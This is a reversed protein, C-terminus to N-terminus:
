LTPADATEKWLSLARLFSEARQHATAHTFRYLGDKIFNATVFNEHQEQTVPIALVRDLTEVYKRRLEDTVLVESEAAHMANLDGCFNPPEGKGDKKCWLYKIEWSKWCSSAYELGCLECTFGGDKVRHRTWGVAEAVAVNIEQDTM